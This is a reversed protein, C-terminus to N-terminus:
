FSPVPEVCLGSQLCRSGAGDIGCTEKQLLILSWPVGGRIESPIAATMPMLLLLEFCFYM